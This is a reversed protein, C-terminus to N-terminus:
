YTFQHKNLNELVDCILTKKQKKKFLSKFSFRNNHPIVRIRSFVRIIYTLNHHRLISQVTHFWSCGLSKAM